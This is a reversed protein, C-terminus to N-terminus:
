RRGEQEWAAIQRQIRATHSGEWYLHGCERCCFLERGSEAVAPPVAGEGGVTAPDAPELLGNCLSCRLFRVATSLQPWRERVQRWQEGLHPSTVLFAFPARKSLARDRTLLIRGERAARELLDDDTVGKLYVTDSGVFRLYRALRGLMEDVLWRPPPVFM